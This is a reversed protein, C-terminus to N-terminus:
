RRRAHELPVTVIIRTGKGVLSQIDLSGGLLRAREEMSRIGMRKEDAAEALRRTVDFGCGNDEIRLIIDPHSKVMRVTVKSAAAHRAVNNLGEQLMRYINIEADSDLSGSEIGTSFFDILVGSRGSIEQCYNELARTLGLQDLAPPRLGYAIDRVAAIAKKVVRATAEGRRHLEPDLDDHGDFLTELNLVISSLDQAVNDHLDRALRQREAEQVSIIDKTLALIREQAKEREAVEEQLQLNAASLEVTRQAVRREMGKHAARLEEELLKHASIDSLILLQAERGSWAILKVIITIWKEHGDKTLARGTAVGEAREGDVYDGLQSIVSARDDPHVVAGPEIRALEDLEYGLIETIAENIFVPKQRVLVVVGEQANEVLARYREESEMLAQEARKRPTVDILSVIVRSLSQQYEPPVAFHVAVWIIDGTLTRHTIEGQYESGGSALLIMEETFADMSSGTLVRDLNGMLEERSGAGLLELTARNVDVVDVLTACKGLAEPHNTFFERFDTVGAEELEDFYAKLRTLDEEWLSIPSDEFLTRFRRESEQIAMEARKRDTIDRTVGLFGEPEGTQSLLRSVMSEAWVTTGDKRVVELEMRHTTGYVGRAELAKRRRTQERVVELSGPSFLATHHLARLEELTYGWLSEGSPTVYTFNGGADQLWVVDSVNEALLRYKHESERLAEEAQKHATADTVIGEIAMPNGLADRILIIRQRAWRVGGDKHMYQFEYEPRVVGDCIERWTELFYDRWEELVIDQILLPNKEYELLSYGSFREVSPSLYEYVGEPVTMRFFIDSTSENIFQLSKRARALKAEAEKRATIDTIVGEVAVPEGVDNRALSMRQNLWRTSGDRHFVPFECEEPGTGERLRKWWTKLTPAWDDDVLKELFRPTDYFDKSAYGTITEVAPSIYDYMGDSLRLRFLCDSINQALFHLYQEAQSLANRLQRAESVDRMISVVHTLTGSDDMVPDFRGWVPRKRGGQSLVVYEGEWSEGAHMAPIVETKYLDLTEGPLVKEPPHTLIDETSYGWFEMFARNIFIPYLETNRVAMAVGSADLLQRFLHPNTELHAKQRSLAAPNPPLYKRTM